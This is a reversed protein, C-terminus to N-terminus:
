RGRRLVAPRAVCMPLPSVTSVPDAYRDREVSVGCLMGATFTLMTLVIIALMM